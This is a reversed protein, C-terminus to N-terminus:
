LGPPMPFPAPAPPVTTLMKGLANRLAETPREGYAESVKRHKPGYLTVLYPRGNENKILSVNTVIGCIMLEELHPTM